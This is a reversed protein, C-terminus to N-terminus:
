RGTAAAAAFVVKISEGFGMHSMVGLIPAENHTLESLVTSTFSFSHFLPQTFVQGSEIILTEEWGGSRGGWGSGVGWEGFCSRM